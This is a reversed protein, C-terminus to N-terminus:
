RVFDRHGIQPETLYGTVPHGDPTTRVFTRAGVTIGTHWAAGLADTGNKQATVIDDGAAVGSACQAGRFYSFVYVTHNKTSKKTTAQRLIVACDGPTSNTGTTACTGAQSYTKNAVAVESGPAYGHAAIITVRPTYIVKELDKVADFLGDWNAPETGDFYYRNSFQQTAGRYAFEKVIRLSYQTTAMSLLM